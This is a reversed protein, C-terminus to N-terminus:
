KGSMRPGPPRRRRRSRAVGLKPGLMGSVRIALVGVALGLLAGALIDAPYHVGVYVRSLAVLTALGYLAVRGRRSALTSLVTAAAFSTAAHGSPFSLGLPTTVLPEPEPFVLFPRERGTAGKIALATLDAALVAAGTTLVIWPRRRLAGLAVGIALWVLGASGAWSLGVFAPDLPGLRHTVVWRQLETDLEGV